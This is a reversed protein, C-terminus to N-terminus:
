INFSRIWRRGRCQQCAIHGRKKKMLRDKVTMIYKRGCTPCKWWVKGSYSELINDLNVGLLLNEAHCWEKDVLEPNVTQLITKRKYKRLVYFRGLFSKKLSFTVRRFLTGPENGTTRYCKLMWEM